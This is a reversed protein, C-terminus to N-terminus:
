RASELAHQELYAAAARLRNPHHGLQAIGVNCGACLLARVRGTDHCHDVHWNGRGGPSTTHCIACRGGQQDLMQEYQEVSLGYMNKLHRMRTQEPTRTRRSRDRSKARSAEIDAAYRARRDAADCDYCYSKRGLRMRKDLGFCDLPLARDCRPCGKVVTTM